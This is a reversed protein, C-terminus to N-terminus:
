ENSKKYIPKLLKCVDYLSFDVKSSFEDYTNREQNEIPIKFNTNGYYKLFSSFFTNIANKETVKSRTLHVVEDIVLAFTYLPNHKIFIRQNFMGIDNLKAVLMQHSFTNVASLFSAFANANSSLSNEPNYVRNFVPENDINIMYFANIGANRIITANNTSSDHNAETSPKKSLFTQVKDTKRLEYWDLCGKEVLIDASSGYNELMKSIEFDRYKGSMEEFFNNFDATFHWVIVEALQHLHHLKFKRLKLENFVLIYILGSNYKFFLRKRQIGIDSIYTILMNQAFITLAGIFSSIIVEDQDTPQNKTYYRILLPLGSENIVYISQLGIKNFISTEKKVM